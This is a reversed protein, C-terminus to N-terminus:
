LSAVPAGNHEVFHRGIIKRAHWRRLHALLRAPIRKRASEAV